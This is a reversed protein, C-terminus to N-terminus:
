QLFSHLLGSTIAAALVIGGVMLTYRLITGVDTKAMTEAAHARLTNSLKLWM